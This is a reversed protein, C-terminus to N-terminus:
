GFFNASKLGVIDTLGTNIVHDGGARTTLNLDHILHGLVANGAAHDVQRFGDSEPTLRFLM